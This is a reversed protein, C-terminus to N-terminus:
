LLRAARGVKDEVKKEIKGGSKGTPQEEANSTTRSKRITRGTGFVDLVNVSHRRGKKDTVTLM